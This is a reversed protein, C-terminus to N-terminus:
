VACLPPLDLDDFEELNTNLQEEKKEELESREVLWTIEGKNYVAIINNKSEEYTVTECDFPEILKALIITRVNEGCFKCLLEFNRVGSVQKSFLWLSNFKSNTFHRQFIGQGLAHEVSNIKDADKVEWPIGIPMDLGDSLKIEELDINSSIEMVDPIVYQTTEPYTFRRQSVSSPGLWGMCALEQKHEIKVRKEVVKKQSDVLKFNEECKYIEQFIRKKLNYKREKVLNLNKNIENKLKKEDEKKSSKLSKNKSYTYIDFVAGNTLKNIQVGLLLAAGSAMWGNDTIGVDKEWGGNKSGLEKKLTLFDISCDLYFIGNKFLEINRSKLYDMFKNEKHKPGNEDVDLLKHANKMKKDNPCNVHHIHRLMNVYKSVDDKSIEACSNIINRLIAYREFGKERLLRNLKGLSPTYQKESNDDSTKTM